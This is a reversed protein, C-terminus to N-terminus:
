PLRGGGVVGVEESVRSIDTIPAKRHDPDYVENMFFQNAKRYRLRAQVVLPGTLSRPVLFRYDLAESEGPNIAPRFQPGVPHWIDPTLIAHGSETLAIPRLVYTGPEVHNERDLEGSHFVKKGRNDYAELEIWVRVVNLPGTPFSHGAKSNTLVVRFDCATGARLSQPAEIKMAVVPGLPWLRQIEPVESKGTLWSNVERTQEEAGPSGLTLPMYQNAAAFRHNHYKLSMGVAVDYPDALSQSTANEVFM